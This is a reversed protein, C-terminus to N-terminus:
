GQAANFKAMKWASRGRAGADRAPKDAAIIAALARNIQGKAFKSYEAHATDAAAKLNKLISYREKSRLGLAVLRAQEMTYAAGAESAVQKLAEIKVTNM